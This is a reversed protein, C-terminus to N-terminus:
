NGAGRIMKLLRKLINPQKLDAASADAQMKRLRDFDAANSAAREAALVSLIEPIRENAALVLGFAEKDFELLEASEVATVTATRPLGTLLSMEGVVAGAGLEFETPPTGDERDIRGTLRGRVVVYFTEGEEGQRFLTEGRTYLVRRISPAIRRLAEDGLLSRGDAGVCLTRCLGSNMLDSVASDVQEREPPRNRQAALVDMFDNLLKDSMPFPIEIGRRKFQYWIMRNVNGEIEARRSYQDTWFRLRYNIGFDLYAVIFADPAPEPMVDPVSRAAAVLAAIVDDPADEYSAGVQLIHRRRPEPRAINNILSEAVKSNPVIFLHGDRSRLRTERWNTQVVQGEVDGIIVWDQPLVTRVIHLSMGALLNGLVGQLAFGVVATILATSALLPAINIGLQGRLVAFLIALVLLARIIGLLLDPVPFPRRRLAFFQCALAEALFVVLVGVWFTNWALVHEPHGTIWDPATPMRRLLWLVIQTLALVLLPRVVSAALGRFALGLPHSRPRDKKLVRRVLGGLALAALYIVLCVLAANADRLYV